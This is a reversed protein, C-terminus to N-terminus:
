QWCITCNQVALTKMARLNVYIGPSLSQRRDYWQTGPLVDNRDDKFLAEDPSGIREFYTSREYNVSLIILQQRRTFYFYKDTGFAHPWLQASGLTLSLPPLTLLWPTRGKPGGLWVLCFWWLWTDEILNLCYSHRVNTDTDTFFGIWSLLSM